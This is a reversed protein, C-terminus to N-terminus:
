FTTTPKLFFCFNAELCHHPLLKWKCHCSSALTICTRPLRTLCCWPWSFPSTSTAAWARTSAINNGTCMHDAGAPWVNHVLYLFRIHKPEKTEIILDVTLLLSSCTVVTYLSDFFIFIKRKTKRQLKSARKRRTTKQKTSKLIQSWWSVVM